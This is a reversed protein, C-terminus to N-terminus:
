RPQAWHVGLDCTRVATLTENTKIQEPRREDETIIEKVREKKKKVKIKQIKIDVKEKENKQKKKVAEKEKNRKKSKARKGEKRNRREMKIEKRERKGYKEKGIYEKM